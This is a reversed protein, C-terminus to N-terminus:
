RHLHSRAGAGSHRGRIASSGLLAVLMLWGLSGGGRGGGSNTSGGGGTSVTVSANQTVSGGGGSCQLTFTTTATLGGITENGSTGRAGSWGGSATCATANTTSWSLQTGSGSTVNTPNASLTLTPAAGGGGTVNVLAGRHAAGGPGTCSLSFMTTASLPGVNESGTPTSKLGPWSGSGGTGICATADTTTWTLASFGGAAVTGPAADLTVTPQPASASTHKYLYVRSDDGAYKAFLTVGYAPIPTAVVNFIGAAGLALWPPAPIPIWTENVPDMEYAATDFFVLFNGGVPDSTVVSYTTGMRQPADPIRRFVRSTNLTYLARGNSGEGGGLIMMRHRASYEAFNHYDGIAIGSSLMSWSNAVPNYLFIPGPGAAQVLGGLEPFYELAGCCEPRSPMLPSRSWTGAALDFIELRESQDSAPQRFYLRGVSPVLALHDYAHSFNVNWPIGGAPKRRTWANTAEDYSVFEADSGHGGGVFHLQRRTPDWALDESFWFVSFATGDALTAANFNSTSLEAWQRGQLAAAVDSMPTAQVSAALAATTLLSTSMLLGRLNSRRKENARKNKKDLM